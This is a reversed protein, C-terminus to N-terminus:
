DTQRPQDEILDFQLGSSGEGGGPGVDRGIWIHTSGDTWRARQVTLRMRRAARSVTEEHLRHGIGAETLLYSMARIPVPQLDDMNRIMNAQRLEVARQSDGTHFLVYPIWNEPVTNALRYAIPATSAKNAKGEEATEEAARAAREELERLAEEAAEMHSAVAEPTTAESAATAAAAAENAMEELEDAVTSIRDAKERDKQEKLRQLRSLYEEYGSRPEGLSNLITREVAWVMNVMEDRLFLVEELAPSQEIRPLTPPLFLFDNRRGSGRNSEALRTARETVALRFMDWRQWNEGEGSGARQIDTTQGFVDIVNLKTIFCLSGIPLPIPFLFWDNGHILAFEMLILKGLDTTNVTLDGFDIQRDEFEWWRHNPMGRFFVPTPVFETMRNNDEDSDNNDISGTDPVSPEGEESNAGVTLRVNPDHHLSFDPWDLKRGDYEPTVLVIELQEEHPDRASVQFEYELRDQQWAGSSEEFEEGHLLRRWEWLGRLAEKVPVTLEDAVGLHAPLVPNEVILGDLLMANGDIARGAMIELFERAANDLELLADGEPMTLPYSRRFISLVTTRQADTMGEQNRIEREFQQGIQVAIRWDVKPFEQEVIVELPVDSTISKVATGESAGLRINMLKTVKTQITANVPSGADDGQFEGFQWQRALMWLTDHIQAQISRAFNDTRARPEIRQWFPLPIKFQSIPPVVVVGGIEGSNFTM